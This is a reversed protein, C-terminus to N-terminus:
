KDNRIGHKSRKPPKEPKGPPPALSHGRALYGVVRDDAVWMETGTSRNIM